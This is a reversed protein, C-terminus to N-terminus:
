EYIEEGLKRRLRDKARFVAVRASNESIGKLEAIEKTDLSIIFRLILIDRDEEGLSELARFFVTKEEITLLGNDLYVAYELMDSSRTEKRERRKKMYDRILNLEISYLWPFFPKEMDFGKLYRYARFFVEQAIDRADEANHLYSFALAFVRKEYTKLITEFAKLDGKKVKRIAENENM